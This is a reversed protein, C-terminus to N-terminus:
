IGGRDTKIDREREGERVTVMEKYRNIDKDIM